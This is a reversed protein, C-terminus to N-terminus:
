AGHRVEPPGHGSITAVGAGWAVRVGRWLWQVRGAPVVLDLDGGHEAWFADRVAVRATGVWAGTNQHDEVRTIEWSSLLAATHPGAVLRGGTGRLRM